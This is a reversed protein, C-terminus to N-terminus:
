VRNRICEVPVEPQTRGPHSRELILPGGVMKYHFLYTYRIFVTPESRNVMGPIESTPPIEAGARETIHAAMMEVNWLTCQFEAM